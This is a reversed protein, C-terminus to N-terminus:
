LGPERHGRHEAAAPVIGSPHKERDIVAVEQSATSPGAGAM